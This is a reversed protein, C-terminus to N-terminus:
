TKGLFTKALSKIYKLFKYRKQSILKNRKIYAKELYKITENYPSILTYSDEENIKKRFVARIYEDGGLIDFGHSGFVNTLSQLSFNYTHALVNYNQYDFNYEKKQYLDHIGPVEVYILTENNVLDNINNLETKLNTFHEFVHSMILIDPTGFKKLGKIGGQILNIGKRKAILLAESSYDCGYKEVKVGKKELINSTNEIRNGSGCGVEFIKLVKKSTDIFDIVFPENENKKEPTNFSQKEGLVLPWYINEYFNPM